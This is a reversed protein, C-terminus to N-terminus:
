AFNEHLPYSVELDYIVGGIENEPSGEDFALGDGKKISVDSLAVTIWHEGNRRFKKTVDGVYVGRHKPAKGRVLMQNQTGDLFGPTLGDFDKDQGRAFVQKLNNRLENDLSFTAAYGDMNKWASDVAARYVQTTLAVYEPGKLRGEIKFCSVGTKVLEPIMEAAMLDQPSLLYKVDQLDKLHGDVLLGYPM